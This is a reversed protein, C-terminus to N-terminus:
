PKPKSADPTKVPGRAPSTPPVRPAPKDQATPKDNPIPKDPVVPPTPSEVSPKDPVADNAQPAAPAPLAVPPTEAASAGTVDVDLLEEGGLPMATTGAWVDAAPPPEAPVHAPKRLGAAGILSAHALISVMVATRMVWVGKAM